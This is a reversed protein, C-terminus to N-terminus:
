DRTLHMAPLSREGGMSQRKLRTVPKQKAKNKAACFSKLNICGWKDISERLQQAIPTRNLFNNGIYIHELINGVREQLLKV